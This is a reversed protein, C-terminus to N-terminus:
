GTWFGWNGTGELTYVLLYFGVFIWLYFFVFFSVDVNWFFLLCHLFFRLLFFFDVSKSGVFERGVNRITM